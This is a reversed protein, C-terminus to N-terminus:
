GPWSGRRRGPGPGCRAPRRSSGREARPPPRGPRHRSASPGAPGRRRGSSRRGPCGSVAWISAATAAMGIAAGGMDTTVTVDGTTTPREYQGLVPRAASAARKGAQQRFPRDGSCLLWVGWFMALFGALSVVVGWGPAAQALVAGVMFAVLGSLFIVSGRVSGGRRDTFGGHQRLVRPGRGASGAPDRRSDATRPPITEDFGAGSLVERGLLHTRRGLAIPDPIHRVVVVPCPPGRASTNASRASCGAPCRRTGGPDSLRAPRGGPRRRGPGRGSSGPDGDPRSAAGPGTRRPACRVQAARCRGRDKGRGEGGEGGRRGGCHRRRGPVWRGRGRRTAPRKQAPIGWRPRPLRCCEEVQVTPSATQRDASQAARPIVSHRSGRALTAPIPKM